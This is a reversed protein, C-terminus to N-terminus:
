VAVAPLASPRDEVQPVFGFYQVPFPIIVEIRPDIMGFFDDPSSKLNEKHLDWFTLANKFGALGKSPQMPFEADVVEFLCNEIEQETLTFYYTFGPYSLPSEMKHYGVVSAYLFTRNMPHAPLLRHYVKETKLRTKLYDELVDEPMEESRVQKLERYTIPELNDLKYASQHRFVYEVGNKLKWDKLKM